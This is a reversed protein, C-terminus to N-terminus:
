YYMKRESLYKVRKDKMKKFIAPIETFNRDFKPDRSGLSSYILFQEENYCDKYAKLRYRYLTSSGSKACSWNQRVQLMIMLRPCYLIYKELM